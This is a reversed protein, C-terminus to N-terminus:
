LTCKCFFLHAKLNVNKTEFVHMERFTGKKKGCWVVRPPVTKKRQPQLATNPCGRLGLLAGDM